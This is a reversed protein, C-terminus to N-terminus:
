DMQQDTKRLTRTVNILKERYINQIFCLDDTAPGERTCLLRFNDVFWRFIVGACVSVFAGHVFGSRNRTM